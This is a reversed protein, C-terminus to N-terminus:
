GLYESSRRKFRHISSEVVRAMLVELFEKIATCEPNSPQNETAPSATSTSVAQTEHFDFAIEASPANEKIDENSSPLAIVVPLELGENEEVANEDVTAVKFKDTVIGIPQNAEELIRTLLFQKAKLQPCCALEALFMSNGEAEKSDSCEVVCSETEKMNEGSEVSLNVFKEEKCNRTLLLQKMFFLGKPWSKLQYLLKVISVTTLEDTQNAQPGEQMKRKAARRKKAGSPM